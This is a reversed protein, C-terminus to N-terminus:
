ALRETKKSDDPMQGSNELSKLMAAVGIGKDWANARYQGDAVYQGGQYINTGAYIYPSPGRGAARYGTGNYAEAYALLPAPDKTDKSIGLREKVSSASRLADFASSEWDTFLKGRPVHTTPQGLPDGNHLYRDFRMGSERWHIAAILEWPIGTKEAVAEYRSRNALAKKRFMDTQRMKDPSLKLHEANYAHDEAMTQLNRSSRHAINSAKEVYKSSQVTPQDSPRNNLIADAYKKGADTTLAATNTFPNRDLQFHMPDRVSGQWSFRAGIKEDAKMPGKMASLQAQSVAMVYAKDADSASGYVKDSYQDYRREHSEVVDASAAGNRYIEMHEHLTQPNGMPSISTTEMIEIKDGSRVALYDYEPPQKALGTEDFYGIRNTGNPNNKKSNQTRIGVSETGDKRKIRIKTVNPPLMDGAGVRWEAVKNGKFDVDYTVKEGEKSVQRLFSSSLLAHRKLYNERNEKESVGATRIQEVKWNVDWERSKSEFEAKQKPTLRGESMAEMFSQLDKQHEKAEAHKKAAEPLAKEASGLAANPMGPAKQPEEQRKTQWVFRM